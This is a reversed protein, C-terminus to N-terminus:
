IIFCYRSIHFIMINYVFIDLLIPHLMAHSILENKLDSDMIDRFVFFYYLLLLCHFLTQQVYLEMIKQGNALM